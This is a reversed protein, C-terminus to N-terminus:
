CNKQITDRAQSINDMTQFITKLISMDNIKQAGVPQFALILTFGIVTTPLIKM